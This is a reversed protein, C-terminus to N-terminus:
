RAYEASKLEAEIRRLAPAAESEGAALAQRYLTLAAALDITVGRGSEYLQALSMM